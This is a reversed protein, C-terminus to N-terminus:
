VVYDGIQQRLDILVNSLHKRAQEDTTDGALLTALSGRPHARGSLALYALLGTSGRRAFTVPRGDVLVESVGLFNLELMRPGGGITGSKRVARPGAIAQGPSRAYTPWGIKADM